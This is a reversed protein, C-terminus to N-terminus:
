GKLWDVLSAINIEYHMAVIQPPVNNKVLRPFSDDVDYHQTSSHIYKQEAYEQLDLYGYAMLKTQFLDLAQMEASITDKIRQVVEYLSVAGAREPTSKDIRMVVLEGSDACDLQELSSISITPASAVISKIEYWGDSYMFDQDASEAGSWGQVAELATNSTQIRKEMFLLEGLLGKRSHEDMLGSRQTELLKSWQKYRNIVLKLAEKESAAPRSYEIVDCCLTAFVGQQEDRLLEFSLTWRNDSERRRRTVKMSKSSDIADIETDSVLLLTRQRISQYGIHWELPHQTDIELFGGDTYGIGSWQKELIEPTIRM